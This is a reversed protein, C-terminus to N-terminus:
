LHLGTVINISLTDKTIKPALYLLLSFIIKSADGIGSSVINFLFYISSLM